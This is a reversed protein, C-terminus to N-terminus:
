ANSDKDGFTHDPNNAWPTGFVETNKPVGRTRIVIENLADTIPHTSLFHHPGQPVFVIKRGLTTQCDLHITITTPRSMYSQTVRSIATVPVSIERLYNSATLVGDRLSVRRLRWSFWILFTSTVLWMALFQWRMWDPPLQNDRGQFAGLWLAATGAGFGSILVAPFIFKWVVTLSSSLTQQM